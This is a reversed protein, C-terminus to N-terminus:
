PYDELPPLSDPYNQSLEFTPQGDVKSTSNYSEFTGRDCTREQAFAAHNPVILGLLLLLSVAVLIRRLPKGPAIDQTLTKIYAAHDFSFM